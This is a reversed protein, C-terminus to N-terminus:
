NWNVPISFVCSFLLLYETGYVSAADDFMSVPAYLSRIKGRVGEHHGIKGKEDNLVRYAYEVHANQAPVSNLYLVVTKGSLTVSNIVTGDSMTFGDKGDSRQAVWGDGAKTLSDHCNFTITLTTGDLVSKVPYVNVDTTNLFDRAITFGYYEGLKRYSEPTMHPGLTAYNFWYQPGVMKINPNEVSALFVANPIPSENMNYFSSSATQSVYLKVTRTQGTIAKIDTDFDSQWTNLYTKYQNETTGGSSDAEGHVVTVGVVEYNWGNQEAIAKACRVAKIANNYPNTGKKLSNYGYGGVGHQSVICLEGTEKAFQYALSSSITEGSLMKYYHKRRVTIARKAESENLASYDDKKISITYYSGSPIMSETSIWGSWSNEIYSTGWDKNRFLSFGYQYGAGISVTVDGDAYLIEKTILTTDSGCILRHTYGNSYGRILYDNAFNEDVEILPYIFEREKDSEHIPEIFAMASTNVKYYDDERKNVYAPVVGGNFMYALGIMDDRCNNTICPYGEAGVSLSQGIGLIHYLTKKQLKNEINTVRTPINNYDYVVALGLQATRTFQTEDFTKSKYPSSSDEFRGTAGWAFLYFDEPIYENIEYIKYGIVASGGSVTKFRYTVDSAKTLTIGVGQDTDVVKQVIYRVFGSHYIKNMGRYVASYDHGSMKSWDTYATEFGDIAAMQNYSIASELDAIKNANDTIQGQVTKESPVTGLASKLDSVDQRSQKDAIEYTQGNVVQETMIKAM